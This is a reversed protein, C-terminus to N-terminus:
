NWHLEGHHKASTCESLAFAIITMYAFSSLSELIGVSWRRLFFYTTVRLRQCVINFFHNFNQWPQMKYLHGCVCYILARLNYQTM